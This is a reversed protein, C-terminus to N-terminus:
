SNTLSYVSVVEKVNKLIILSTKNCIVTLKYIRLVTRVVAYRVTVTLVLIKSGSGYKDAGMQNFTVCKCVELHISSTLVSRPDSTIMM